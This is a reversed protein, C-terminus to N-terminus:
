AFVSFRVSNESSLKSYHNTKVTFTDPFDDVQFAGNREGLLGESVLVLRSKLKGEEFNAIGRKKNSVPM